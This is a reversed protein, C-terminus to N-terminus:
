ARFELRRRGQELTRKALLAHNPGVEAALQLKVPWENGDASRHFGIQRTNGTLQMGLQNNGIVRVNCVSDACHCAADHLPDFRTNKWQTVIMMNAQMQGIRHKVKGRDFFPHGVSFPQCGDLQFRQGTLGACILHLHLHDSQIM